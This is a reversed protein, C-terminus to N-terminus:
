QGLLRNAQYIADKLLGTVSDIKCRASKQDSCELCIAAYIGWLRDSIPGIDLAVSLSGISFSKFKVGNEGAWEIKLGIKKITNSQEM